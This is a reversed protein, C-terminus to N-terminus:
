DPLVTALHPALCVTYPTIFPSGFAVQHVYGTFIVLPLSAVGAVVALTFRERWTPALNYLVLLALPILLLVDGYRASLTWSMLMGVAVAGASRWRPGVDSLILLSMCAFAVVTNNWTNAFFGAFHTSHSLLIIALVSIEIPLFWHLLRLTLLMTGVYLLLMPLLFPDNPMLVTFPAIFVAMGPGHQVTSIQGHILEAALTAYSQQDFWGYWGTDVGARWRPHFPSNWRLFLFHATSYLAVFLTARRLALAPSRDALPPLGHAQSPPPLNDTSTPMAHHTYWLTNPRHLLNHALSIRKNPQLYVM